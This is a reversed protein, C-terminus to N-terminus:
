HRTTEPKTAVGTYESAPLQRGANDHLAYHVLHHLPAHGAENILWTRDLYLRRPLRDHPMIATYNEKGKSLVVRALGSRSIIVVDGQAERIALKSPAAPVTHPGTGTSQRHCPTQTAGLVRRCACPWGGSASTTRHVHTTKPLSTVWRAPSARVSPRLTNGSSRLLAPARCACLPAMVPDPQGHWERSRNPDVLRMYKSRFRIGTGSVFVARTRSPPWLLLHLTRQCDLLPSQQRTGRQLKTQLLKM